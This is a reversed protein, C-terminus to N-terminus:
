SNERQRKREKRKQKMWEPMKMRASERKLTAADMQMYGAVTRQMTIVQRSPNWELKVQKAEDNPLDGQYWIVGALKLAYLQRRTM